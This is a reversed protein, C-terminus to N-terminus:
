SRHRLQTSDVVSQTKAAQPEAAQPEAAQPEAAQPEAAPPEEAPPKLVDAVTGPRFPVGTQVLAAGGFALPIIDKSLTKSPLDPKAADAVVAMIGERTNVCNSSIVRVVRSLPNEETDSLHSEFVRKRHDLCIEISHLLIGGGLLRHEMLPHHNTLGTETAIIAPPSAYLEAIKDADVDDGVEYGGAPIVPTRLLRALRTLLTADEPLPRPYSPDISSPFTKAIVSLLPQRGCQASILLNHVVDREPNYVQFTGLDVIVNEHLSTAHDSIEGVITQFEPLTLPGLSKPLSFFFESTVVVAATNRKDDKVRPKDDIVEICEKAFRHQALDMIQTATQIMDRKEKARDRRWPREEFRGHSPSSTEPDYDPTVTIPLIAIEENRRLQEEYMRNLRLAMQAPMDKIGMLELCHFHPRSVRTTLDEVRVRSAAVSPIIAASSSSHAERFSRSTTRLLRAIRSPPVTM